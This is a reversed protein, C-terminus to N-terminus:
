RKAPHRGQLTAASSVPRARLVRIPRNARIRGWIGIVSGVLVVLALLIETWEEPDLSWGAIAALSCVAAVLPGIVGRSLYWPKSDAPNM